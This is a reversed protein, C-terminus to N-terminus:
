STRPAAAEGGLAIDVCTMSMCPWRGVAPYILLVKQAALVSLPPPDPAPRPARM